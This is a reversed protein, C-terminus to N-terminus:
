YKKSKRTVVSYDDVNNIVKQNAIFYGGEVADPGDAPATLKPNVLLFQEELKQMHPNERERENLILQGNSNLPELNGEVRVFKDPKKRDDGKISIIGRKKGVAIFLPKFVQQFFPDQLSNNEMYFYVQTKDAVWDRLDFFWNVFTESRAQELYGKYVYLKGQYLGVLFLGKTSSVGSEKNSTSPDAYAVVFSLRSLPPCKGWVMKKFVTGEAVPNNMYEKQYARTSINAKIREINERSNKEPWTPNGKDDEINVVEAHDAKKMARVISCDRAIINNLWIIQLPKSVSRTPYLADEFWEWNNKVIEPNRVNEDTELDSVIIKDPRVEENRTGRPSQGVGLALFSVGKVTTFDGKQWQGQLKQLGYDNIIRENKELNLRYPTILKEANDYSNSVLIISKKVGTLAQYITEMMTVVDKALERAWARCEYWEPNKLIRRSAKIHFKAPPAYCYNPFYYKKWEEFNSELRAIRKKQEEATETADVVITALYQDIYDDWTRIAARDAPKINAIAM